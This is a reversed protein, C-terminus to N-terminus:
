YLIPGITFEEKPLYKEVNESSFNSINISRWNEILDIKNKM